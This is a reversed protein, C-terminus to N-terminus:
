SEIAMSEIRYANGIMKFHVTVRFTTGKSVYNGIAFAGENSGKGKHLYSFKSCPHETFFKKLVLTAQSKSYVEEKGNISIMFKDKGHVVVGKADNASFAKQISAYPAESSSTVLMLTM